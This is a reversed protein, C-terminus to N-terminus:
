CQFYFRIKGKVILIGVNSIDNCINWINSLSVHRNLMLNSKFLYDISSSTQQTGTITILMEVTGYHKDSKFLSTSHQEVANIEQCLPFKQVLTHMQESELESLDICIKGMPRHNVANILGIELVKFQDECLHMDFHQGWYPKCITSSIIKSKFIKTGLKLRIYYDDNM